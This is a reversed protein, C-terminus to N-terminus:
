AIGRRPRHAPGVSEGQVWIMPWLRPTIDGERTYTGNMVALLARALARGLDHLGVDFCALPPDLAACAPTRRQGIVAVDVGPRLGASRLSAYVGVPGTESLVLIASPPQALALFADTAAACQEANVPGAYILAPDIALAAGRLAAEYRALVLHSFNVNPGSTIIAIREHGAAVFRAMADDVMMEFDLDISPYDGPTESRGLTVFPTGRSALLAIRADQRGTAALIWADAIGRRLHRQLISLSDQDAQSLLVVLELGDAEIVQQVGALVSLFFPDGFAISDPVQPLIFAVTGTRQRRLSRGAQNPTYDLAAAAAAVRARTAESVDKRGNLARSVTGISLGLHAALGRIDM